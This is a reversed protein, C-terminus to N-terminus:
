IKNINPLIVVKSNRVVENQKKMLELFTEALDITNEESIEQIVKTDNKCEPEHSSLFLGNTIYKLSNIDEFSVIKIQKIFEINQVKLPLDSHGLLSKGCKTVIFGDENIVFAGVRTYYTKNQNLDKVVFFGEGNIALSITEKM